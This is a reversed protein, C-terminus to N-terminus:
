APYRSANKCSEPATEDASKRVPISMIWGRLTRVVARECAAHVLHAREIRSARGEPYRFTKQAEAEATAGREVEQLLLRLSHAYLAISEDKLQRADQAAWTAQPEAESRADSVVKVVNKYRAAEPKGAPYVAVINELVLASQDQTMTFIPFSEVVWGDAAGSADVLRGKGAGRTLRSLAEHMLERNSFKGLAERYTDLVKDAAEQLKNKEANKSAEAIAGHTAIAVLFGALGPAPYMVQGPGMGANDLNVMGRYSVTEAAPLKLAFGMETLPLPDTAPATPDALACGAWFGALMAALRLSRPASHLSRAPKM